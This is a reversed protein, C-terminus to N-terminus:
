VTNCFVASKENKCYSQRGPQMIKPLSVGSFFQLLVQITIRMVGTKRAGITGQLVLLLDSQCECHYVGFDSPLTPLLWSLVASLVHLFLDLCDSCTRLTDDTLKWVPECGYAGSTLPRTSSQNSYVLGRQLWANSWIMRMVYRRYRHRICEIRCSVGFRTIWQFIWQCCIQWINDLDAWSWCLQQLFLLICNKPLLTYIEKNCMSNNSQQFIPIYCYQVHLYIMYTTTVARFIWILSVAWLAIVFYGFNMVSHRPSM